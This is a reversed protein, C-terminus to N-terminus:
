VRISSSHPFLLTASGTPSLLFVVYDTSTHVDCVEKQIVKYFNDVETVHQTPQIFIGCVQIGSLQIYLTVPESFQTDCESDSHKHVKDVM